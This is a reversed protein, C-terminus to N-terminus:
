HAASTSQLAQVADWAARQLIQAEGRSLNVLVDGDRERVKATREAPSQQFLTAYFACAALYTGAPSPHSGDPQFLEIEPHQRRVAEWAMGVPAVMVREERAVRLYAENLTAQDEPSAKRAWTLYLVPVARRAAIEEVWQVAYPHFISDDKVHVVGDQEYASGLLSQEQLVVYDWKSDRLAPRAEGGEWHSKLFWGGPTVARTEVVAQGGDEALAAIMAPLNNAATYSNGIFLVRVHRAPARRCSFSCCLVLLLALFRCWRRM